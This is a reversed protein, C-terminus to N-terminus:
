NFFTFAEILLKKGLAKVKKMPPELSSAFNLVKFTMVFIGLYFKQFFHDQLFFMSIGLYLFSQSIEGVFVRSFHARNTHQHRFLIECHVVRACTRM